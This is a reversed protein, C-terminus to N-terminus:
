IKSSLFQPESHNLSDVLSVCSPLRPAQGLPLSRAEPLECEPSLSLSLLNSWLM